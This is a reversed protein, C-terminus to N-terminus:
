LSDEHLENAPSDPRRKRCNVIIKRLAQEAVQLDHLSIAELADSRNQLVVPKMERLLKQGKPTLALKHRKGPQQFLTRAILEKHLLLEVIRTISAKDKFVAEALEQQSIERHDSITKLILWQDITVPFGRIRLNHQAYQRYTKIAKELQYFFVSELKDM